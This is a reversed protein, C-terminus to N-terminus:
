HFIRAVFLYKVVGRVLISQQQIVPHSIKGATMVSYLVGLICVDGPSGFEHALLFPWSLSLNVPLALLHDAVIRNHMVLLIHSSSPAELWINRPAAPSIDEYLSITLPGSALRGETAQCQCLCRRPLSLQVMYMCAM